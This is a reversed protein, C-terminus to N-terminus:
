LLIYIRLMNQDANIGLMSVIIVSIYDIYARLAYNCSEAGLNAEALRTTCGHRLPAREAPHLCSCEKFSQQWDM